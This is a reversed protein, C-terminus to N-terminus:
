EKRIAKSGPDDPWPFPSSLFSSTYGLLWGEEGKGRFGDLQVPSVDLARLISMWVVRLGVVAWCLRFDSRVTCRRRYAIRNEGPAMPTRGVPKNPEGRM